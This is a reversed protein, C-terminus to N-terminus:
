EERLVTVPEVRTAAAAPILCAALAVSGLLLAVAVYTFPDAPSVEYLLTVLLRSLALAALLGVGLGAAVLILGQRLFLSRVDGRDAGLAMRVGVEHRRQGVSYSIVGYIGLAALVLAILAFGGLLWMNFEPQAVAEGVRAQMTQVDSVPQNPDIERVEARVAGSVTAPDADTRVAMYMTNIGFQGFPYYAAERGVTHLDYHRSHRVVGVVERWVPQNNGSGMAIRQGIPNEGPWFRRVFEEDVIAVPPADIGDARTFGRGAVLQVGMTQFYNPSVFRREAELNPFGDGAPPEVSQSREVATTGSSYAGSLPLQSILGADTVGPIAGVRDLLEDWFARTGNADYQSAPLGIRLTLQQETDYGPDTQLMRGLSTMLLGAGVLLVIALAVESIVLGTRIRKGGIGSSSGRGGEKLSSVLSTKLAVFGPALGFLIATLGGLALTFLLVTADIGISDKLPLGDPAAGVLVRVLGMAVLLGLGSGMAALIVSETLLQRALRGRGAGLATRVALERERVAARTLQLNAVNVCAILLVFLVAGLLIMLAPRVEEVLDEHLSLVTIDWGEFDYYNPTREQMQIAAARMDAQAQELTVGAKMRGFARLFHSGRNVQSYDAGFIPVFPVWLDIRDPFQADPHRISFDPPLIGVIRYTVGDATLTQELVSLDGGFRRQWFGHDLVAVPSAAPTDDDPGFLRGAAAQVRMVQFFEGSTGAAGIQEPDGQGTFAVTTPVVAGIGDFQTAFEKMEVFEPGSVWNQPLDSGFNTWLLTLRDADEYPLDRLLVGNVVSFVATNAGIGLALTAAAVLTFLPSKRLTRLAFRIDQRLTDM